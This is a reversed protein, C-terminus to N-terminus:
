VDQEELYVAIAQVMGPLGSNQRFCFQNDFDYPAEVGDRYIGDFLPTAADAKQQDAQTFDVPIMRTFSMGMLFDGVRHLMLGIRAVRRTKTISTGDAAGAETRLLKGDSNYKYGIQVKAAPYQLTISGSNSVVVDPHIGGDTLISVTENELWTLGSITTVMKRIQGGTASPDLPAVFAGYGTSVIANGQNDFLQFTNTTVTGVTFVNGNILNTTTVNGDPDTTSKNFGVIGNLRVQNGNSLGHPNGTTVVTTAGNSISMAGINIPADYTIGCDFHYADEQATADDYLKQMVEVSYFGVGNIYRRVILWLQDYTTDPSPIVGASVVTPTTGASDSQGGLQHQGWGVKLTTDDRNYSMSRLTGDGMVAWVLPMTEKQIVLKKILPIMLHDALETLDSSRFTGVQFFYNMERLRRSARQVHLTANGAQVPDVNASGFATTQAANFNTPTLAQAASSPSINWESAQTGALLGQATSKLWRILNLDTSNLNFQMANSDTVQLNSINNGAFNDYDGPQSGDLEQPNRVAGAYWLRNQHFCASNPFNPSATGSGTWVGLQWFVIVATSSLLTGPNIKVTFHAPDTIAGVYGWISQATPATLRINRGVGSFGPVQLDPMFLAPFVTGGSVWAHVFPVNTLDFHTSDIVIVTWFSTALAATSNNAETTGVVGQIWVKDGTAYNHASGTTVRCFGTGPAAAIGSIAFTPGTTCTSAATDSPIITIKVADGITAYSNLPLYPGDKFQVPQLKWYINSSRQLKYVPHNPHTLYLTDADQAWRIGAVESYTYPTELELVDGIATNAYVSPLSENPSPPYFGAATKYWTFLGTNIDTGKGAIGVSPWVLQGGGQYFRIYKDGFELMYAQTESFMFPILVPQKTSDKVNAVYKTGPRRIVPGQLTPLYNFCKGMGAKYRESDVRGYVLPSIEGANFSPQLPTAKPM